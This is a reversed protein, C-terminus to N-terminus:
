RDRGAGGLGRRPLPWAHDDGDRGALDHQLRLRQVSAGLQVKAPRASPSRRTRLTRGWWDWRLRASHELIVHYDWAHEQTFPVTVTTPRLCLVRRLGSRVHHLGTRSAEREVLLEGAAGERPRPRVGPFLIAALIAIIAIVVLLEILTFGRRQQAHSHVSRM